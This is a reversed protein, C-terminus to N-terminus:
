DNDGGNVFKFLFSIYIDNRRRKRGGKRGLCVKRIRVEEKKEKTVSDVGRVELTVTDGADGGGLAARHPASVAAVSM